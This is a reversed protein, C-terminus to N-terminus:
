RGHRVFTVSQSVSEVQGLAFCSLPSCLCIDGRGVYRQAAIWDINWIERMLADLSNDFYAFPILVGVGLVAGPVCLGVVCYTDRYRYDTRWGVTSQVFNLLAILLAILAAAASLMLSNLTYTRFDPTWSEGFYNVALRILVILPIVFGIFIPVLCATFAM